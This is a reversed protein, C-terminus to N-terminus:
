RYHILHIIMIPYYSHCDDIIVLRENNGVKMFEKSSQVRVRAVLDESAPHRLMFRAIRGIEIDPQQVLDDYSVFLTRDTGGRSLWSKMFRWVENGTHMHAFMGAAYLEETISLRPVQAYDSWTSNCYRRYRTWFIEEVSRFLVIFKADEPLKEYREKLM